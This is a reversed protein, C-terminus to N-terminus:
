IQAPVGLTPGLKRDCQYSRQEFLSVQKIERCIYFCEVGGGPRSSVKDHHAPRPGEQSFLYVAVVVAIV